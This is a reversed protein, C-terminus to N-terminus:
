ALTITSAITELDRMEGVMIVNPDQRLVHKLGQAFSLIDSGLQRQRIICRIPTFLFEIPDEITVIHGDVQSARYDIMAATTTSKGTGTAGFVGASRQVFKKLDICVPHGQERTSGVM